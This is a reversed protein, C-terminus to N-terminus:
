DLAHHCVRTMMTNYTCGACDIYLGRLRNLLCNTVAESRSIRISLRRLGILCRFRYGRMCVNWWPMMNSM